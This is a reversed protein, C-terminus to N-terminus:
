VKERKFPNEEAAAKWYRVCKALADQDTPIATLGWVEVVEGKSNKTGAPVPGLAKAFIKPRDETTAAVGYLNIYETMASRVDELTLPEDNNRHEEVEAAEDAADQAAVEASDEAAPDVRNEPDTSIAPPAETREAAEAAEDEAIEAKTRRSRGPSPEGRKRPQHRPDDPESARGTNTVVQEAIEPALTAARDAEFAKVDDPHHAHEAILWPQPAGHGRGDCFGLAEMHTAMAARSVQEDPLFIKIEISM